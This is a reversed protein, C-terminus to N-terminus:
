KAAEVEPSSTEQEVPEASLDLTASAKMGPRLLGGANDVLVKFGFTRGGSAVDAAPAIFTVTGELKAEPYLTTTVIARMGVSLDKLLAIDPHVEVYVKSIDILHFLRRELPYTTEGLEVLKAAVVGGFPARIFSQELTAKRLDAIAQLRELERERASVELVALDYAYRTREYDTERLTGSEFLGKDRALDKEAQQLQAEAIRLNSDDQSQLFALQWNARDVEAALEALVEGRQVEQGEEVLIKSVIGVSQANVYSSRLALVTGDLPGLQEAATLVGASLAIIVVAGLHLRRM